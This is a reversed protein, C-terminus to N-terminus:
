ETRKWHKKYEFFIAITVMLLIAYGGLVAEGYGEPVPIVLLGLSWVVCVVSGVTITLADAHAGVAIGLFILLGAIIIGFWVTIKDPTSNPYTSLLYFFFFADWVFFGAIFVVSVLTRAMSRQVAKRGM